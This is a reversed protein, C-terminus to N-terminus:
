SNIDLLANQLSLSSGEIKEILEMVNFSENSGQISM